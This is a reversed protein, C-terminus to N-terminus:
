LKEHTNQANETIGNQTLLRPALILLKEKTNDEPHIAVHSLLLNLAIGLFKKEQVVQMLDNGDVALEKFSFAVGEAHMQSILHNWKVICPAPSLNDKCASFDAQKVALLDDMLEYHQVIFKRLKNEKTALDYDYMHWLTLDCILNTEKLPAKLRTLITKCLDAGVIPHNVFRGDRFYATPKGVDHLLSALRVQKKAYGAARLSHELVDHDHFDARQKLGRGATLEPFIGDLVRTKDLISLATYVGNKNGYKEDAALILRLEALIREPSIDKILAANQTAGMMTKTDPLFGTTGAMRALRMLRLGDEGFVKNANDVTTLIKKQIDKQGGLPDIFTDRTIDYYIANCTFDRRKADLLIDETFFIEAPTHEGRIYKDSRFSAYEFQTQQNTKTSAYSFKVTGTHKYVADILFGCEKAIASFNEASIPACLDFDSSTLSFGSLFDRVSGGVVYLPKGTKELCAKALIIINEPLVNQM